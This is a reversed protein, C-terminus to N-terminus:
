LRRVDDRTFKDAVSAAERVQPDKDDLLKQITDLIMRDNGRGRGPVFKAVGLQLTAELRWGLDEDLLAIRALDSFNPRSTRVAKQKEDWKKLEEYLQDNLARYRKEDESGEPSIQYLVLSSTIMTQWGYQRHWIRTSYNVLRQGFVFVAKAVLDARFDDGREKADRAHFLAADVMLELSDGYSPRAAPKLPLMDDLLGPQVVSCQAAQVLLDAAERARAADPPDDDSTSLFDNRHEEALRIATRYLDNAVTSGDTYRILETPVKDPLELRQLASASSAGTPKDVKGRVTLLVVVIIGGVITASILSGFVLGLMRNGKRQQLHRQHLSRAAM